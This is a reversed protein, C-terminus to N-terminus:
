KAPTQRDELFWRGGAKRLFVQRGKIEKVTVTASDGSENVEGTSAFRRLERVTEPDGALRDTVLKVYRDFQGGLDRVRKDVADPDALQAALYDYRRADIARVVSTLAAKATEQPYVDLDAEIGFRAAPPPDKKQGLVPGALLVLIGFAVATRM